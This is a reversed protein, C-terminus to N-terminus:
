PIVTSYTLCWLRSADRTMVDRENGALLIGRTNHVVFLPTQLFDRWSRHGTLRTQTAKWRWVEYNRDVQENIMSGAVSVESKCRKLTTEIFALFAMTTECIRNRKFNSGQKNIEGGDRIDRIKEMCFPGGVLNPQKYTFHLLERKPNILVKSIESWGFFKIKFCTERHPDRSKPNELNPEKYSKSQCTPLGHM